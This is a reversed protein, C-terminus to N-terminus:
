NIILYIESERRERGEQGGRAEECVCRSKERGPGGRASREEGERERDASLVRKWRGTVSGGAREVRARGCASGGRMCEGKAEAEGWRLESVRGWLVVGRWDDGDRM